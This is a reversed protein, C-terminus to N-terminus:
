GVLFLLQPYLAILSHIRLPLGRVVQVFEKTELNYAFVTPFETINHKKAMNTDFKVPIDKVVEYGPAVGDTAVILAPAKSSDLMDKYIKFSKECLDCSKSNYFIWLGIKQSALLQHAVERKRLIFKKRDNRARSRSSSSKHSADLYPDMQAYKKAAIGLAKGRDRLVKEMYLYALVNEKTPNDAADRRFKPLNDKIWESSMVPASPASVFEAYERALKEIEEQEQPPKNEYFHWSNPNSRIWDKVTAKEALSIGPLTFLLALQIVIRLRQM